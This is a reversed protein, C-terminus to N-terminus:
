SAAESASTWHPSAGLQRFVELLDLGDWHEALEGNHERWIDISRM